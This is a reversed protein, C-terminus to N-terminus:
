ASFAWGAGAGAGTSLERGGSGGPTFSRRDPRLRTGVTSFTFAPLVEAIGRWVPQFRTESGRCAPSGDGAATKPPAAGRTKREAAQAAASGHFTQSGDLGDPLSRVAMGGCIPSHASTGAASVRGTAPLSGAVVVIWRQGPQFRIPAGKECDRETAPASAGM